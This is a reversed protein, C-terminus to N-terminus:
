GDTKEQKDMSDEQNRIFDRAMVLSETNELPGLIEILEKRSLEWSDSIDGCNYKRVITLEHEGSFLLIQLFAKDLRGLPPSDFHNLNFSFWLLTGEGKVSQIDFSGEALEIAQKLFPLGLGVKRHVHKIGNTFFPDLAKELEEGTMGCGNDKIVVKVVSYSEIVELNVESAGAEISNQLCDVIFDCVAAHM